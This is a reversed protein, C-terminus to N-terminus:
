GLSIVIMTTVIMFLGEGGCDDHGYEVHKRKAAPQYASGCHGSIASGIRFWPSDRM